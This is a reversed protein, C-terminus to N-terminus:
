AAFPTEFSDTPFDWIWFDQGDFHLEFPEPRFNRHKTLWKHGRKKIAAVIDRRYTRALKSAKRNFNFDGYSRADIQGILSDYGELTQAITAGLQLLIKGELDEVDGIINSLAEM